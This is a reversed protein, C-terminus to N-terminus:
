FRSRRGFNITRSVARDRIPDVVGRGPSAIEVTVDCSRAGCTHDCSDSLCTGFCSGGGCTNDCSDECSHGCVSASSGPGRILGVMGAILDEPALSVLAGKERRDLFDLSGLAESPNFVLAHFLSPDERARSILEELAEHKTM